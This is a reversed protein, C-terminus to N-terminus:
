KMLNLLLKILGLKDTFPAYLIGITPHQDITVCLMVMVYQLLNELYIKWILNTKKYIRSIQENKSFYEVSFVENM